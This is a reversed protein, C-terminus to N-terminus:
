FRLAEAPQVFAINPRKKLAELEDVPVTASIFNRGKLVCGRIDSGRTRKGLARSLLKALEDIGKVGEGKAGGFRDRELEIFVNVFANKARKLKPQKAPRLGGSFPGENGPARLFSPKVLSQAIRAPATLRKPAVTSAVLSSLEARLGNVTEDGDAIMRLKPHLKRSLRDQIPM